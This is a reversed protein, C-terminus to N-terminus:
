RTYLKLHNQFNSRGRNGNISCKAEVHRSLTSTLMAAITATNSREPVKPPPLLPRSIIMDIEGNSRNRESLKSTPPSGLLEQSYTRREKTIYPEPTKRGSLEDRSGARRYDVSFFIYNLNDPNLKIDM